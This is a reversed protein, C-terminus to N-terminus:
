TARNISAPLALAKYDSHSARGYEAELHMDKSRIQVELNIGCEKHRLTMHVSRYGSPKPYTVYDKYRKMDESWDGLVRVVDRISMVMTQENSAPTPTSWLPDTSSSPYVEAFLPTEIVVEGNSPSDGNSNDSEDDDDYVQRFFREEDDMDAYTADIYDREETGERDDDDDSGENYKGNFDDVVEIEYDFDDGYRVANIGDDYVHGTGTRAIVEKNSKQTREEIILRVGLMDHLEHKQKSSKVMKKFASSPSKFRSQITIRSAMRALETDAKVIDEVDRRFKALIKRAIPRFQTYWNIFSAFSKPFLLVYSHVELEPVLSAVGIQFSIPAWLQLTEMALKHKAAVGLASTHQLRTARLAMSLGLIDPRGGSKKLIAQRMCMAQTDDLEKFMSRLRAIDSAIDNVKSLTSNLNDDRGLVLGYSPSGSEEVSTYPQSSVPEVGDMKTDAIYTSTSTPSFVDVEMVESSAEKNYSSSSLGSTLSHVDVRSGEGEEGLIIVKEVKEPPATAITQIVEVTSAV